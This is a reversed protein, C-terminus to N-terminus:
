HKLREEYNHDKPGKMWRTAARKRRELHYTDKNLNPCNAQIAYELDPRVLASHLPVFIEKTLCTFPRKIFYVMGRAKNAATLANASPTFASKVTIGLDNVQECKTMRKGESQVFNTWHGSFLLHPIHQFM